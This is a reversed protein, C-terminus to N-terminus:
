EENVLRTLLLNLKSVAARYRVVYDPNNDVLVQVLVNEPVREREHPVYVNTNAGLKLKLEVFVKEENSM